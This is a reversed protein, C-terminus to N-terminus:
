RDRVLDGGLGGSLNYGEFYADVDAGVADSETAGGADADADSM